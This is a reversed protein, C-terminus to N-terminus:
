EIAVAALAKDRFIETRNKLEYYYVCKIERLEKKDEHGMTPKM